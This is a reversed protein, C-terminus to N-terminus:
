KYINWHIYHKIKDPYNEDSNSNPFRVSVHSNIWNKKRETLMNNSKNKINTSYNRTSLSRNQAVLILGETAAKLRTCELWWNTKVKDIDANGIKLSYWRHQPKQWRTSKIENLEQARSEKKQQQEKTRKNSLRKNRKKRYSNSKILIGHFTSSVSWGKTIISYDYCVVETWSILM